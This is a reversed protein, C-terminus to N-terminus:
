NRLNIHFVEEIIQWHAPWRTDLDVFSNRASDPMCPIMCSHIQILRSQNTTLPKRRCRYWLNRNMVSHDAPMRRQLQAWLYQTRAAVLRERNLRPSARTHTIPVLRTRSAPAFNRRYRPLRTQGELRAWRTLTIASSTNSREHQM